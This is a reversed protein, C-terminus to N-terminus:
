AGSDGDPCILSLEAAYGAKIPLFRVSGGKGGAKQVFQLSQGIHPCHSIEPQNQNTQRTQLGM